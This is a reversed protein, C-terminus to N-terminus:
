RVSPSGVGAKRVAYQNEPSRNEPTAGVGVFHPLLNTFCHDVFDTVVEPQAVLLHHKSQNKRSNRPLQNFLSEQGKWGVESSGRFVRFARVGAAGGPFNPGGWGWFPTSTFPFIYAKPTPNPETHETTETAM